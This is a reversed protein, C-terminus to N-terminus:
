GLHQNKIKIEWTAHAISNWHISPWSKLKIQFQKLIVESMKLELNGWFINEKKFSSVPLGKFSEMYLLFKNRVTNNKLM